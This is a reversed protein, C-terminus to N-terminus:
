RSRPSLPRVVQGARAPTLCAETPVGDVSVLCGQCAGIGCYYRAGCMGTGGGLQVIGSRDLAAALTDSPEFQIPRDGWLFSQPRSM